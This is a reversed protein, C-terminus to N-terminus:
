RTPAPLSRKLGVVRARVVLGRERLLGRLQNCMATRRPGKYRWSLMALYTAARCISPGQSARLASRRPAPIAAGYDDGIALESLRLFRRLALDYQALRFGIPL